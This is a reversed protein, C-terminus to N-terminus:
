TITQEYKTVNNINCRLNGVLVKAEIPGKYRKRNSYM